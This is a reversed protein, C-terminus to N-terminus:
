AEPVLCVDQISHGCLRAVGITAKPTAPEGPKWCILRDRLDNTAVILDPAVEVRRLTQGGAEYRCEFSDGLVRVHVHLSTDAYVLRRVGHTTVMWVSEAARSLGTHLRQPKSNQGKPWFLVDGDGNGAFLGEDTPFLATVTTLSGRYVAAPSDNADDAPWRIIREDVACYLEGDFFQVARITRADRTLSEFRRRGAEPQTLPWEYVGLESHSGFVRDGALAVSNFGGRVGEADNAVLTLDPGAREIPWRYVGRAAGVFLIPRGAADREVQVSRVSGAAGDVLLRRAPEDPIGPSFFLLHEGAATVIWQTSTAPSDLAFLAAYLEGRQRESFTRILEPLAVDPSGSALDKLRTLLSALHDLHQAQAKELASQLEYSALHEARRRAAQDQADLMQQLTASVFRASPAGEVALGAAFCPGELATSLADCVGDACRAEVLAAADNKAAFRALATRIAPQFYRGLSAAQVVRHSGLVSKQFSLLESRDPVLSLRLGIEACCQYRDRTTLGDEELTLEIPTVRVFMVDAADAAEATGGPRVVMHDGTARRILAAWQAPLDLSRKLLGFLEAAPVYLAVSDPRQFFLHPDFKGVLM